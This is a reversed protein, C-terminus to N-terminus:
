EDWDEEFEDTEEVAFSVDAYDYEDKKKDYTEKSIVIQYTDEYLIEKEDIDFQKFCLSYQEKSVEELIYSVEALDEVVEKFEPMQYLCIHNKKDEIYITPQPIDGLMELLAALDLVEPDGSGFLKESLKENEIDPSLNLKLAMIMMIACMYGGKSEGSTNDVCEVRIYQSEM